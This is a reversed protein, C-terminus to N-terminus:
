KPSKAYPAPTLFVHQENRSFFPEPRELRGASAGPLVHESPVQINSKSPVHPASGFLAMWSDLATKSHKAHVLVGSMRLTSDAPSLPYPQPDKQHQAPGRLKQLRCVQVELNLMPLGISNHGSLSAMNRRRCMCSEHECLCKAPRGSLRRTLGLGSWKPLQQEVSAAESTCSDLSGHLCIYFEHLSRESRERRM